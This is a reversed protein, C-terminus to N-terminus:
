EPPPGVAPCSTGRCGVPLTYSLYVGETGPNEYALAANSTHHAFLGLRSGGPFRYALEVGSRVNVRHGLDEESDGPEFLGAGLSPTFILRETLPLDWGAGGLVYVSGRGTAMVGAFPHLGIRSAAWRHEVGGTASLSDRGSIVGLNHVGARVALLNGDRPPRRGTCGSLVVIGLLLLCRLGASTM